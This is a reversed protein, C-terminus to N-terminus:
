VSIARKVCTTFGACSATSSGDVGTADLGTMLQDPLSEIQCLPFECSNGNRNTPLTNLSVAVDPFVGCPIHGRMDIPM